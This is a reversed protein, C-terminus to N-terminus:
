PPRTRIGINTMAVLGLGLAINAVQGELKENKLGVDSQM